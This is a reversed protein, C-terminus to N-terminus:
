SSVCQKPIISSLPVPNGSRAKTKPPELVENGNYDKTTLNSLNLNIYDGENVAYSDLELLYGINVDLNDEEPIIQSVLFKNGLAVNFRRGSYSSAPKINWVPEDVIIVNEKESELKKKM